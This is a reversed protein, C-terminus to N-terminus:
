SRGPRLHEYYNPWDEVFANRYQERWWRAVDMARCFWVGPFGKAYRIFEELVRARYPRGSLYPHNGWIMYSPYQEGV